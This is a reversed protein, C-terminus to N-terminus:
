ASEVNVQTIQAYEARAMEQAQFRRTNIDHFNEELRQYVLNDLKGEAVLEKMTNRLELNCMGKRYPRDEALATFIDAVSIIRSGLPLEDRELHFPYGTGDNKEHHFSAWLKIVDLAEIPDLINYTHFTHSKIINFEEATLKEPKELIEPPVAVKGIDHLYGAIKVLKCQIRSLGCVEGIAEATEAVGSSHTATFNSRFDIMKSFMRSLGMLEDLDMEVKYQSAIKKLKMDIHSYQTHLWFYEKHAIRNFADAVDPHFTTGKRDMIKRHISDTQNLIYEDGRILVDVRDALHLIHSELPVSDGKEEYTRHHHRVFSAIKAFPPFTNLLHYGLEAHENPNDLEFKLTDLRDSLSISGIDHLAGAIMLNNIQESRFGLEYGLETALYAVKKHHNAVEPSILDIAGSLSLVIESLPIFM